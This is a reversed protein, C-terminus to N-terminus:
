PVVFLVVCVFNIWLRNGGVAHAPDGRPRFAQARPRLGPANDELGLDALTASLDIAGEAAFIGVLASMLPKRMSHMPFKRAVEGWADVVLGDKVIM